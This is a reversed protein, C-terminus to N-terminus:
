SMRSLSKPSGEAQVQLGLCGARDYTNQPLLVLMSLLVVFVAWPDSVMSSQAKYLGKRSRAKRRPSQSCM